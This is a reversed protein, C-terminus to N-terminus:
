SNQNKKYKLCQVFWLCIIMNEECSVGINSANSLLHRSHWGISRRFSSISGFLSEVVACTVLLKTAFKAFSVRLECATNTLLWKSRFNFKRSMFTFMRSRYTFQTALSKAQHAIQVSMNSPNMVTLCLESTIYTVVRKTVRIVKHRVFSYNVITLFKVFTRYTVLCKTPGAMELGVRADMGTELRIFTIQTVPGKTIGSIEFYVLTTVTPLTPVFTGHTVLTKHLTDRKYWVQVFVRTVFIHIHTRYTFPGKAAWKMEFLVHPVATTNVFVLTVQARAHKASCRIQSNVNTGVCVFLRVFTACAVLCKTTGTPQSYVTTNM